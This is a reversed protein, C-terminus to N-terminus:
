VLKSRPLSISSLRTLLCSQLGSVHLRVKRSLGRKNVFGAADFDTIGINKVGPSDGVPSYVKTLVVIDERPLNLTKIAKGLVLESHGNSYMNATDFTNIGNEYAFKVHEIGEQEGLVWPQRLSRHTLSLFIPGPRAIRAM